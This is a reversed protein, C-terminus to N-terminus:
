ARRPRPHERAVLLVLLWPPGEDDPAPKQESPPLPFPVPQTYWCPAPQPPLAQALTMVGGKTSMKAALLRCRQHLPYHEPRPQAVFHALVNQPATGTLLDLGVVPPLMAQKVRQRQWRSPTPRVNSESGADHM